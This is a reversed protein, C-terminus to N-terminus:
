RVSSSPVNTVSKKSVFDVEHVTEELCPPLSVDYTKLLLDENKATTLLANRKGSNM